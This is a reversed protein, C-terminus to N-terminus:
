VMRLGRFGGGLKKDKKDKKEAKEERKERRETRAANQVGGRGFYREAQPNSKGSGPGDEPGAQEPPSPPRHSASELSTSIPARPPSVAGHATGEANEPDSFGRRRSRIAMPTRAAALSEGEGEASSDPESRGGRQRANCQMDLLTSQLATYKKMLADYQKQLETQKARASSIASEYAAAVDGSPKRPKEQLASALQARLDEIQTEFHRTAESLQQERAAVELAMQQARAEAAAAQQAAAEMKAEKGQYEREVASLRAIESKLREIMATSIDVAELNQESELRKKEAEEVVRRLNECEAQAKELQQKLQISEANWKKQEERLARLKNSLDSEWKKAMSRRHDFEKRIQAEGRKAEDLRQRLSRNAIVLNQTEAETASVRIQRRRLEGMHVMHQQKVFREYQLDNVLRFRHHQLLDIQDNIGSTPEANRGPAHALPLFRPSKEGGQEQPSLMLSPVSDNAHSQHLGSKVASAAPAADPVRTHSQSQDLDPPLTPSDDDPGRSKQESTDHGSPHSSQSAQRLSPSRTVSVPLSRVSVAPHPSGGIASSGLLAPDMIEQELGDAAGSGSPALDPMAPGAPTPDAPHDVVLAMCDALVEEAESKIWRSMDTKESEITFHYFNPHLLHRKRFQESRDRIEMAQVDIDEANNAHRLYRQPKRIYDLFNIPYLGYLVTFYEPLYSISHGDYDPDLLSTEWPVGAGGEDNEAGMETHQKTFYSNRDWFLLRAYINFLTPLFPGLSSPIFPLIMTLTILALNVTATSEDKQLSHLINVFLPTQLILHLHPPGSSVYACLLSLASNRHERRVFYGNLAAMFGKPDRKGFAMLANKIMQEKLDTSPRLDPQAERVQMWRTLLRDVVSTLGEEGWAAPDDYEDASLLDLTHTMVERALGKERGVHDLVPDLLKDWWKFIKAPTRLGPHLHRLVALFAAYKEPRGQVVKEWIGLLEDDLREGSGEDPEEHKELYAAIIDNIESPLPLTPAQFFGNLAKALEKTSGSSTM